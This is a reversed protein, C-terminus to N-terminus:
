YLSNYLSSLNQRAHHRWWSSIWRDVWGTEIIIFHLSASDWGHKIRDNPRRRTGQHYFNESIANCRMFFCYVFHYSDLKVWVCVYISWIMHHMSWGDITKRTYVTCHRQLAILKRWFERLLCEMAQGDPRLIPHRNHTQLRIKTRKSDDCRRINYRSLNSHTIVAISQVWLYTCRM